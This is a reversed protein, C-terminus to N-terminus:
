EGSSNAPQDLAALREFFEAAVGNQNLMSIPASIGVYDHLERLKRCALLLAILKDEHEAMDDEWMLPQHPM